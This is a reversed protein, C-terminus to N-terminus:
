TGISWLFWGFYSPHRCISYVGTTVLKHEEVKEHAVVHTFNRAATFMASIRFTHGVIVMALGVILTIRRTYYYIDELIELDRIFCHEIVYENLAIGHALM